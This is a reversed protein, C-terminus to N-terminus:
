QVQTQVHNHSLRLNTCYSFCSQPDTVRFGMRSHIRLVRNLLIAGTARFDANKKVSTGHSLAVM